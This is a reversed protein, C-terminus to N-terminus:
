SPGWHTGDGAGTLERSDLKGLMFFKVHSIKRKRGSLGFLPREWGFDAAMRGSRKRRASFKCLVNLVINYAVVQM